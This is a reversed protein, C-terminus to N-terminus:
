LPRWKPWFLLLLEWTPVEPDVSPLCLYIGSLRPKDGTKALTWLIFPNHIKGRWLVLWSLYILIVDTFDMELQMAPVRILNGLIYITQGGRQVDGPQCHCPLCTDRKMGNDERQSGSSRWWWWSKNDQKDWQLWKISPPSVRLPNEWSDSIHFKDHSHRLWYQSSTCCPQQTYHLM